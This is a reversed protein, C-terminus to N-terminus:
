RELEMIKDAIERLKEQAKKRESDQLHPNRLIRHFRDQADRAERLLIAKATKGPNQNPKEEGSLSLSVHGNEEARSGRPRELGEGILIWDFDFDQGSESKVLEPTLGSSYKLYLSRPVQPAFSAYRDRTKEAPLRGAKESGSWHGYKKGNEKWVFLLGHTVFEVFIDTLRELTLSPRIPSVKGWIVRINTIEFSGNADALGYLWPYEVRTPESCKMLKDSSWIAEPDIIRRPMATRLSSEPHEFEGETVASNKRLFALHAIIGAASEPACITPSVSM